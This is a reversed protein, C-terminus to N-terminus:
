YVGKSNLYEKYKKDYILIHNAIWSKLFIAIEHHLLYKDSNFDDIFQELKTIFIKHHNRHADYDPYNNKLLCAEEETLHYRAFEQLENIIKALAFKDKKNEMAEYIDDLAKFLVRHHENFKKIGVDYSLNWKVNNM